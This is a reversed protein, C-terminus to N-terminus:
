SKLEELLYTYIYKKIVNDTYPSIQLDVRILM